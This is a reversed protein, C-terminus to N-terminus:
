TGQKARKSRRYAQIEEMIEQETPPTKGKNRADIERFLEELKKLPPVSLKTLVLKDGKRYLIVKTKPTIKLQKRFRQPIVIQGKTGVVAVDSEEQEM